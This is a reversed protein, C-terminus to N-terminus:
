ARIKLVQVCLFYIFDKTNITTYVSESHSIRLDMVVHTKQLFMDVSVWVYGPNEKQTKAVNSILSKFM